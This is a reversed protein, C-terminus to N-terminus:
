IRMKLIEEQSKGEKVLENIKDYLRRFHPDCPWIKKPLNGPSKIKQNKSLM